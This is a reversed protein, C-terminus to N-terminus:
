YRSKLARGLLFGATIAAILSQGPYRCIFDKVDKMMAAVDHERVYQATAGVKDATNEAVGSVKPGGPLADAKDHLKSALNDLQDAARRRSDDMTDGVSRGADQLRQQATEAADSIADKVKTVTEEAGNRCREEIASLKAM